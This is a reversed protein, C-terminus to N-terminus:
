PKAKGRLAEEGPPLVRRKTKEKPEGTEFAPQENIETATSKAPTSEGVPRAEPKNQDKKQEAKVEAAGTKITQLTKAEASVCAEAKNKAEQVAEACSTETKAQQKEKLAVSKAEAAAQVKAKQAAKLRVAAARARAQQAASLRKAAKAEQEAKLKAAKAESAAKKDAKIRAAEALAAQEAKIRAAEAQTAQEVKMRKAEAKAEEQAKALQRAAIKKEDLHRLDVVNVRVINGAKIGLKEVDESLEGISFQPKVYALTATGAAHETIGLISGQIDQIPTLADIAYAVFRDGSELLSDSGADIFIKKGETRVIHAAFPINELAAQIEKAASDILRNTAKGFETGYFISSGFPKSNGVVVDGQAEGSLRRSMLHAGTFGNYISLEVEIYRKDPVGLPADMSRKGHSTAANVVTGSILFQAGTEGAIQIIAERQSAGTEAPISRGAYISLFRGSAEIRNSLAIPLGDYINNIDDVHITNAVDFQTITIKKKLPHGLAADNGRTERISSIDETQAKETSAGAIQVTKTKVVEPRAFAAQATWFLASACFVAVFYRCASNRYISSMPLNGFCPDVNILM